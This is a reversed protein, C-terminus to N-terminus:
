GVCSCWSQKWTYWGGRGEGKSCYILFSVYAFLCLCLILFLLSGFSTSLSLSLVSWFLFFAVSYFSDSFFFVLPLVLPMTWLVGYENAEDGAREREWDYCNVNYVYTFLKRVFTFLKNHISAFLLLMFSSNASRREFRM